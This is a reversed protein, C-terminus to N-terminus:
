NGSVKGWDGQFIMLDMRNVYGDGNLDSRPIQFEYAGMDFAGPGDTGIGVIDVPRPNGDLDESPGGTSASDICSSGLRLRYDGNASDVFLPDADINGEGVVGGQINSYSAIVTGDGGIGSGEPSVHRVISNTFSVTSGEEISISIDDEENINNAFTCSDFTVEADTASVVVNALSESVNESLLCSEFYALGGDIFTGGGLTCTNNSIVCGYFESDCDDLYMSGGSADGCPFIAAPSRCYNNSFLTNACYITSNQAFFASGFIALSNRVCTTDVLALTSDQAGIALGRGPNCEFKGGERAINDSFVTTKICVNSAYSFLGGGIGGQLTTTRNNIFKCDEITIESAKCTLGGSYTNQFAACDRIECNRITATAGGVSIGGGQFDSVINFIRLNNLSVRDGGLVRIGGNNGGNKTVSLGDLTCNGRSTIITQSGSIGTGSIITESNTYDRMHFEDLSETGSFGGFLHRNTVEIEDREAYVGEKIWITDDTSSATIAAPISTFATEWSMGTSNDGTDAVYFTAAHVPFSLLAFLLAARLATM